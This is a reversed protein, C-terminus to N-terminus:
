GGGFRGGARRRFETPTMGKFEFFRRNFNALNNFGVDFCVQKVLQDSEMLLRCAQNIRVRNVFETYTGGTARRFSRSFHSLSMGLRAALEGAPVPATAGSVLQLVLADIRDREGLQPSPDAPLSSLLRFRTSGALTALLDIFLTLRRLGHAQAIRHWERQAVDSLGFFQIGRRSRQLMPLVETLERLHRAAAEIPAHAFQIALDRTAVGAHAPETTIWNHPLWPGTLVLHGPEFTGIWDGVFAHGQTAVILHLEYEAHCHWRALPTPYGHALCRVTGGVAEYGLATPRCLDHEMEPRGQPPLAAEGAPQLASAAAAPDAPAAPAARLEPTSSM